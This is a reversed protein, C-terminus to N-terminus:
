GRRTVDQIRNVTDLNFNNKLQQRYTFPTEAKKLRDDLARLSAQNRQIKIRDIKTNIFNKIQGFSPVKVIFTPVSAPLSPISPVSALQTNVYQTAINLASSRISDFSESTFMSDPIIQNLLSFQQIEPASSLPLQGALSQIQASITSTNIPLLNNPIGIDVSSPISTTNQLSEDVSTNIPLLNSPIAM